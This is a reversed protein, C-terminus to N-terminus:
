AAHIVGIRKRLGAFICIRYSIKKPSDNRKVTRNGSNVHTEVGSTNVIVGGPLKQLRSKLFDRM